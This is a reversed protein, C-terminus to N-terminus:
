QNLGVLFEAAEDVGRIDSQSETRAHESESAEESKVLTVYVRALFAMPYDKVLRQDGRFELREALESAMVSALAHGREHTLVHRRGLFEDIVALTRYSPRFSGIESRELPQIRELIVPERPLIIRREAIVVTQAAIDGLRQLKRSAFMSILAVGYMPFFRIGFPFFAMADVPRLFNRLLSTWFNIPYGRAHIVRLGFAHKGLSKGNFFTECIVYYFFELTFWVILLMGVAAGSADGLIFAFGVELISAVISLGSLIVGRVLWDIAYALLRPAPGALQYDLVVNEPTEIRLAESVRIPEPEDPFPQQEAPAIM